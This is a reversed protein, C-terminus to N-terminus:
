ENTYALYDQFQAFHDFAFENKRAFIEQETLLLVKTKLLENKIKGSAIGTFLTSSYNGRPDRGASSYTGLQRGVILDLGTEEKFERVAVECLNEHQEQKGGPFALGSPYNQREIVVFHTGYTAIVDATYIPTDM